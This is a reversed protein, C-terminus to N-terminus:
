LFHRQITENHVPGFMKLPIRGGNVELMTMVGRLVGGGLSYSSGAADFRLGHRLGLSHGVEHTILDAMFNMRDSALAADYSNSFPTVGGAGPIVIPFIVLKNAGPPSFDNLAESNGADGSQPSVGPEHFLWYDFFPLSTGEGATFNPPNAINQGVWRGGHEQWVARAQTDNVMTISVGAFGADSMVSTIKQTLQGLNFSGSHIANCASRVSDHIKINMTGPFQIRAAAALLHNESPYVTTAGFCTQRSNQDTGDEPVRRHRLPVDLGDNDAFDAHVNGGIELKTDVEMVENEADVEWPLFLNLSPRVNEFVDSDFELRVRFDSGDVNQHRVVNNIRTDFKPDSGDMRLQGSLRAIERPSQSSDGRAAIEFFIITADTPTSDVPPPGNGRQELHVTCKHVVTYARGGPPSMSVTDPQLRLRFAM